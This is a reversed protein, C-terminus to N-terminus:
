NNQNGFHHKFKPKLLAKSIATQKPERNSHNKNQTCPLLCFCMGQHSGCCRKLVITVFRSVGQVVNTFIYERQESIYSVKSIKSTSYIHFIILSGLCQFYVLYLSIYTFSSFHQFRRIFTFLPLIGSIVASPISVHGKSRM